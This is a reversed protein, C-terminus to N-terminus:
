TFKHSQYSSNSIFFVQEVEKLQFKVNLPMIAVILEYEIIDSIEQSNKTNQNTQISFPFKYKGAEIVGAPMMEVM